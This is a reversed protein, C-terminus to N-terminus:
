GRGKLTANARRLAVEHAEATGGKVNELARALNLYETSLFASDPADASEGVKIAERMLSLAENMHGQETRVRSLSSLAAAFDNSNRGVRRYLAVAQEVLRDHEPLDGTKKLYRAKICFLVRLHAVLIPLDGFQLLLERDLILCRSLHSRHSLGQRRAHCHELLM